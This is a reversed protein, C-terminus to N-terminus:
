EELEVEEDDATLDTEDVPMDEGAQARLGIKNVVQNEIITRFLEIMKDRSEDIIQQRLQPNTYAEKLTFTTGTHRLTFKDGERIVFGCSKHRGYMVIELIPDYDGIRIDCNPVSVLFMRTAVSIRGGFESLQSKELTATIFTYVEKKMNNKYVIEAPIPDAIDLQLNGITNLKIIASAIHRIYRAGYLEQKVTPGALSSRVQTTLVFLVNYKYAYYTFIDKTEDTIARATSGLGVGGEQLQARLLRLSKTQLSAISDIVIVRPVNGDPPITLRARIHNAINEITNEAPIIELNSLEQSTLRRATFRSINPLLRNEVDFYLVKYGKKLANSVIHLSMNTKGTDERGGILVVSGYPLGGGLVADLSLFGTQEKEVQTPHVSLVDTNSPQPIDKKRRPM